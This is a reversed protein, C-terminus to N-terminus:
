PAPRAMAAWEANAAAILDDVRGSAVAAAVETSFAAALSVCPSLSSFAIFFPDTSIPPSLMVVRDTLGARAAHAGASFLGVIAYDARGDLLAGFVADAGSVREVTLRAAIFADFAAGWSDGANTVGRRGILDDQGTYPIPDAARAMAVATDIAFPPDVYTLFAEREPTRYIGFIVDIAGSRADAIAAEWTDPARLEVAVGLRAGIESVLAAGAGAQTDGMRFGIPAYEPHGTVILRECAGQAFAPTSAALALVGVALASLRNM